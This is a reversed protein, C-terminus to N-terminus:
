CHVGLWSSPLITSAASCSSTTGLFAKVGYSERYMEIKTIYRSQFSCIAAYQSGMSEGHYLQSLEELLNDQVLLCATCTKSAIDLNASRGDTEM